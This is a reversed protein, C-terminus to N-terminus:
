SLVDLSFVLLPFFGGSYELDLVKDVALHQQPAAQIKLSRQISVLEHQCDTAMAIFLKLPIPVLESAVLEPKFNKFDNSDLCIVRIEDKFILQTKKLLDPNLLQFGEAFVFSVISFEFDSLHLQEGHLSPPGQVSLQEIARMDEDADNVSERQLIRRWAETKGRKARDKGTSLRSGRSM